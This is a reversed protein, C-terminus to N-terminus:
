SNTGKGLDAEAMAKMPVGSCTDSMKRRLLHSSRPHAGRYRESIGGEDGTVSNFRGPFRIRRRVRQGRGLTVVRASHEIRQAHKPRALPASTCITPVM